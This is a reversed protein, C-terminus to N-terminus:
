IIRKKKLAFFCKACIEMDKSAEHTEQYPENFLAYHLESLNPWKYGYSGPIHCFDTAAKMTCIREKKFLNHVINERFYEAEVIKEDFSINHAVICEAEDVAASFKTLIDLLPYGEALARKTTIGHIRVADQPIVFGSPKIIYSERSILGGRKDFLGWAIQVIRPWNDLDSLPAKWNRILGTTETDFFLFNSKKM